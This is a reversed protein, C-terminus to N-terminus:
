YFNLILCSRDKTFFFNNYFPAMRDLFLKNCFYLGNQCLFPVHASSNKPGLLIKAYDLPPEPSPSLAQWGYIYTTYLSITLHVFPIYLCPACLWCIATICPRNKTRELRPRKGTGGAWKQRVHGPPPSSPSARTMHQLFYKGEDDGAGARWRICTGVPHKQLVPPSQHRRIAHINLWAIENANDRRDRLFITSVITVSVRPQRRQKGTCLLPPNWGPWTHQKRRWHLITRHAPTHFFFKWWVFTIGIRRGQDDSEMGNLFLRAPTTASPTPRKSFLSDRRAVCKKISRKRQRQKGGSHVAAGKDSPGFGTGTWNSGNQVTIFEAPSWLQTM